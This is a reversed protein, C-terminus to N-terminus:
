LSNLINIIIGLEIIFTVDSGTTPIMLDIMNETFCHIAFHDVTVGCHQCIYM